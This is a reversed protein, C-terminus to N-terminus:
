QKERIITQAPDGPANGVETMTKRDEGVTYQATWVVNGSLKEVMKFAYPGTRTLAVRLGAPIDPGEVAVEKGDLTAVCSAKQAAIKLVLKDLGSDEIVLDDPASLKVETSKWSGILGSSGATRVYETTNTYLDGNAKAGSSTLSLQKGDGSLKWTDISLLKGDIKRYETTWGNADIQRWIAVDGSPMGYTKGDTRFSYTIGGETVEIAEAAAPRFTLIDGTMQSKEQNIKWTGAFPSQAAATAVAAICTFWALVAFLLPRARM